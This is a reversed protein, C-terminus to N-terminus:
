VYGLDQVVVLRRVMEDPVKAPFTPGEYDCWTGAYTGDAQQNWVTDTM